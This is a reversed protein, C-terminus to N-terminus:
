GNLNVGWCYAKGDTGLGCTHYVTATINTYTGPGAGNDVLVPVSSSTTTGDGLYGGQGWCYAKGDTGVACTHRQGASISTYTGPGAGNQVLVPTTRYTTTGDGLQRSSNLGWCYAKGDSALACAHNEGASISTYTGPGVGNQVLVPTSSAVTMGNGLQGSGNRGWCYAKGDSALACIFSGGGDISNYIGSGEGNPMLVPTSETSTQAVFGWCWAKGDADLICNQDYDASLTTAAFESSTCTTPAADVTCAQNTFSGSLTGDSCVRNESHCSDGYPVSSTAYAIVSDGDAM